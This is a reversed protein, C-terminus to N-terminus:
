SASLRMEHLVSCETSQCCQMCHMNKFVRHAYCVPSVQLNSLAKLPIGWFRLCDLVKRAIAIVIRNYSYLSSNAM